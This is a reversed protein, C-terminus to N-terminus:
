FYKAFEVWFLYKLFRKKLLRAMELRKRKMQIIENFLVQSNLKIDCLDTGFIANLLIVDIWEDIKWGKEM